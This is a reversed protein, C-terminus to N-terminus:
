FKLNYSITPVPISFISSQMAQVEGNDTVFFVSYPNNRGLVNYVSINWFSHALKKIRHNGEINLSLDLRFYDPIRYENRASYYVNESGNFYYKGLPVTVPRGTQYVFNASMSYRKTFKYNGVFSFDHPKDINSPFFDGNNVRDEPTDGDIKLLSRNYSYGVWGNLNGKTKKILLEVGYAKGEGQLVENEIQDNLFLQSGVRFDLTNQSRKFYSEVSVEYTNQDFNKYLGLSVQQGEQPRIQESSLKYLDIPSMTTNNTLTHIYQFTNNFSAKLSLDPKLFYRGSFRGELGGYSADGDSNGTAGLGTFFSYRLGGDLLLKETVKYSDSFYLASELGKELPINMAEVLSEAGIPEIEGPHILYMKSSIGYDFEHKENLRHKMNLKAETENISYGSRFDNDFQSDYNIDFGYDSNTLILSGRNRSDFNRNYRLTMLRNTYGYISDSTISFRDKSFYGTAEIESKEDLIHNYKAVVDFFSATTNKLSEEELSKLIWDSYTGRGGVLLGSKGKLIPIDLTLNSTVPGISAEGGFKEISADRTRIDFVSSLRGGYQAPIHGKYIDVSGSTFPNLASFMGFFHAPNYIVADDLIILNQDAKGGRVNFGAAGEGATSVGPLTTAVKLIDREGLVLPINRIEKVNIQSVGTNAEEVNRAVNGELMVADLHELNEELEINLEGASYIVIRKKFAETFLSKTEFINVGAPLRLSYYGNADTVTGINRDEVVVALDSIPNGTESATIRGSLSFYGSSNARSQKGIVITEIERSQNATKNQTFLPQYETQIEEKPEPKEEPGFFESPLESYVLINKTLIVNGDEMFHFNLLTESLIESLVVEVPQNNFEGSMPTEPLWDQIFYFHIDTKEEILELVEELTRNEYALSVKESEQAGVTQLVYLFIIGLFKKM